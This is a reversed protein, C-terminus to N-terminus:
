PKNITVSTITGPVYVYGSKAVNTVAFTVAVTKNPVNLSINCKGDTGTAASGTAGTSWTGSVTADSVPSTGDTMTITATARWTKKNVTTSSGTIAAIYMSYDQPPPTVSGYIARGIPEDYNDHDNSSPILGHTADYMAWEGVSGGAFGLALLGAFHPSAMSTGSMTAYGGGKYTSYISVGPMVYAIKNNASFNSFSAFSDDAGYSTGAGSGGPLGDTDVFASITYVEASATGM